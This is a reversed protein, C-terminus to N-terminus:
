RVPNPRSQDDMTKQIRQVITSLWRQRQSGLQANGYRVRYFLETLRHVDTYVEGPLYSLSKSFELPTLHVPRHIQHRSLIRLLEDYFALQRALRLQDSASLADLGIRRARRRMIWREVLYWSVAVCLVTLVLFIAAGIIVASVTWQVRGWWDSLNQWHVSLIKPWQVISGSGNVAARTMQADINEMLNRRDSGGYGVIATAWKFELLDLFDKIKSGVGLQPASGFSDGATPDYTIWQNDAYVECWAHANSQKVIYYNGLSNFDPADCSFGVVMRAPINLSQCMLTMAGAFYECHGARFDTLFAVIPDRDGIQAMDTLDLTYRFHSRLYGQFHDAIEVDRSHDGALPYASLPGGQADQGCVDPEQAFSKIQPDIRSYFNPSFANVQEPAVNPIRGTSVATYQLPSRLARWYSIIGDRPNYNITADSQITVSQVGAIAFLARTGTPQLTIEQRFEGPTDDALPADKILNWPEGPRDPSAIGDTLSNTRRRWSWPAGESPDNGTYYDLTAGRLLLHIPETMKRGNGYIEVRAAVDDNRTIQAVKQFSVNDSFGTLVPGRMQMAALVDEGAERPFLLFVAASMAVAFASMSYTVRRVSGPLHEHQQQIAPDVGHAARTSKGSIQDTEVKLHFLLYCYLSVFLYVVFCIGFYLSATSISAAIMLLFSLVLLQAYDRNARQEYCKIIQLLVLGQGVVIIKTDDNHLQLVIVALCALTIINALWRPMPTFRGTMVLWGNILIAGTALLWLGPLESAICFGTIGLLVLFYMTPKFQRINYM